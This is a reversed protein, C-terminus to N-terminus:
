EVALFVREWDQGWGSVEACHQWGQDPQHYRCPSSRSWEGVVWWKVVRLAIRWAPDHM